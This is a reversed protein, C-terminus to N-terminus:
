RFAPDRLVDQCPAGCGKVDVHLVKRGEMDSYDYVGLDLFTAQVTPLVGGVEITDEGDCELQPRLPLKKGVPRFVVAVREVSVLGLRHRHELLPCSLPKM